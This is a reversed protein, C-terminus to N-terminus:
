RGSAAALTLTGVGAAILALGGLKAATLPEGLVAAAALVGVLPVGLSGLATTSARFSRNVTVFAWYCFASAIPGNYALVAALELSWRIPGDAELLLVAPLLLLSGLLMQWPM